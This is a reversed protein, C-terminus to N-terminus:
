KKGGLYVMTPEGEQQKAPTSGDVKDFVETRGLLAIGVFGHLNLHEADDMWLNGQYTKGEQPDYVTGNQWEKEGLKHTFGKIITLGLVPRRRLAPNANHADVSDADIPLLAILRGTLAGDKDRTIEIKADHEASWWIGTPDFDPESIQAHAPLSVNVLACSLVLMMVSFYRRM